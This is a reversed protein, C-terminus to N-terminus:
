FSQVATDLDTHTEFVHDFGVMELVSKIEPRPNLLKFHQQIDNGSTKKVARMSAWGDESEPPLEGRFLLAISHFAVLGASSIYSLGSLDLLLDRAGKEYLDKATNILEQYTQGDLEGTIGLVTVEVRGSKKSVTTEM